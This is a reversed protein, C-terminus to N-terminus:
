GGRGIVELWLFLGEQLVVCCRTREGFKSSMDLILDPGADQLRRLPLARGGSRGSPAAKKAFVIV